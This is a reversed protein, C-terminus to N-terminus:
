AKHVRRIGVIEPSPFCYFAGLFGDEDFKSEKLCTLCSLLRSRFVNRTNESIPPEPQSQASEVIPSFYAYKLLIVFIRGLWSKRSRIGESIEQGKSRKRLISLFIDAVYKRRLDSESQISTNPKIVISELHRVVELLTQSDTLALIGEVTKTHTFEDFNTAGLDGTLIQVFTVAVGPEAKVRALMADLPDKSASHLYRKPDTRHNIICKM